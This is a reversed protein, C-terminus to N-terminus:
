LINELFDYEGDECYVCKTYNDRLYEISLSRKFKLILFEFLFLQEISINNNNQYFIFLYLDVHLELLKKQIYPRVLFLLGM